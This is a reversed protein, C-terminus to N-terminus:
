PLRVSNLERQRTSFPKIPLGRNLWARSWIRYVGYKVDEVMFGFGLEEKVSLEHNALHKRFHHTWEERQKEVFGCILDRISLPQAPFASPSAIANFLRYLAFCTVIRLQTIYGESKPDIADLIFVAYKDWDQRVGMADLLIPIEKRYDLDDVFYIRGGRGREVTLADHFPDQVQRQLGDLDPAVQSLDGPQVAAGPWVPPSVAILENGPMRIKISGIKQLADDIAEGFSENRHLRARLALLAPGAEAAGPGIEGLSQIAILLLEDGLLKTRAILGPLAETRRGIRWLALAAEPHRPDKNVINLLAPIAANAAPGCWALASAAVKGARSYPDSLYRILLSTMAGGEPAKEAFKQTLSRTWHLVRPDSLANMLIPLVKEPAIQWVRALTALAQKRVDEEDSELFKGLRPLADILRLALEAPPPEIQDKPSFVYRGMKAILSRLDPKRSKVM